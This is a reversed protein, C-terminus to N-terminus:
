KKIFIQNMAIAAAASVNLSEMDKTMEIRCVIDLKNKVESSLGTEEPGLFIAINQKGLNVDNIEETGDADLGITWIDLSNLKKILSFISNYYLIKVKELGGSSISFVKDSLKVSRKLPVALVGFNFAAASRAIAGLNNTDQIHDCVIFNSSKFVNLQSEKYTEIPECIAVISHRTSYEWNSKNGLESIKINSEEAKTLLSSFKSKKNNSKLYRIEIVRNSELAAEIANSGEIIRGLGAMKQEM